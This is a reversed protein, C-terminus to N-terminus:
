KSEKVMWWVCWPYDGLLCTITPNMRDPDRGSLIESYVLYAMEYTKFIKYHQM